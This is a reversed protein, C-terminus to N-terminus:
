LVAEVVQKAWVYSFDELQFHHCINYFDPVAIMQRGMLEVLASLFGFPPKYEFVAIRHGKLEMSLDAFIQHRIMEVFATASSLLVSPPLESVAIQYVNLEFYLVAIMQHSMLEVLFFAIIQHDTLAAAIALFGFPPKYVSLAIPHVAFRSM